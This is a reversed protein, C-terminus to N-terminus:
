NYSTRLIAKRFSKNVTSQTIIFFSYKGKKSKRIGQFKGIM